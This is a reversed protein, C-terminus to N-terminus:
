TTCSSFRGSAPGARGSASAPSTWVRTASTSTSGTEDRIALNGAKEVVEGKYHRHTGKGKDDAVSLGATGLAVVSCAVAAIVFGSVGKISAM